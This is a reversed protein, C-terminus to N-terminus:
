LGQDRRDFWYLTRGSASVVEERVIRARSSLLSRFDGEGYDDFVDERLALLRQVMPDTKPVFEIVGTAAIGTLWDLAQDLRANKGIVLHHVLALALVADASGRQALGAREAQMWGQTPSPNLANMVLPLFAREERRSRRFATDVSVDDFDFGIVSRAGSDLALLAFDGTNCGVDWLMAPATRQVFEGVFARKSSQEDARYSNDFAYTRWDSARGTGPELRDIWRRMGRLMERLGALPLRRSDLRRRADAETARAQLGAQLVVHTLVRWSLRARLPLLPRLERARIGELSGRYWPQFAVGALATLLLPNLFQECFQGHATWFEGDVYRRFSLHDIFVPRSGEFQVNYATADSLTVGRELAELHVDLQLLAAAKLAAFPWEYPWSLFALKPHELVYRARAAEHRGAFEGPAIRTEDLLLGRAVLEGILGTNRVFDFDDAAAPMVTRFVRDGAHLVRGGRDRFSGADPRLAIM